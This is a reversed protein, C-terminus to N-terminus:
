IAAKYRDVFLKLYTNGYKGSLEEQMTSRSFDEQKLLTVKQAKLTKSILRKLRKVRLCLMYVEIESLCGNLAERITSIPIDLLRCTTDKDLFPRMIYGSHTVFSYGRVFYPAANISPVALFTAPVDNDFSSIGYVRKYEDLKIFYNRFTHDRQFCIVDLINLILSDRQFGPLVKIAIALIGGEVSAVSVGLRIVGDIDLCVYKTTPIMDKINLLKAVIETAKSKSSMYVQYQGIPLRKNMNYSYIPFESFKIFDDLLKCLWEPMRSGMCLFSIDHAAILEFDFFKRVIDENKLISILYEEADKAHADHTIYNFYEHVLRRIYKLKDEHLRAERFYGSKIGNNYYIIHSVRRPMYKVQAESCTIIEEIEFGRTGNSIKYILKKINSLLKQSLYYFLGRFGQLGSALIIGKQKM